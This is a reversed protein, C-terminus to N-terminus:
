NRIVFDFGHGDLPARGAAGSPLRGALNDTQRNLFGSDAYAQLNLEVAAGVRSSPIRDVAFARDMKGSFYVGLRKLLGDLKMKLILLWFYMCMSPM